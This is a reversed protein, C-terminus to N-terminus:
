PVGVRVVVPGMLGAAIRTKSKGKYERATPDDADGLALMRNRLPPTLTVEIANAGAIAQVTVDVVYPPVVADGADLGNVRVRAAGHLWGLDLLVRDGTAVVGIDVTATYQGPSAAGQLGTRDRWDGLAGDSTQFTGDPVDTGQVKLTWADVPVSRASTGPVAIPAPVSVGQSAPTPMGCMLLVSGYAPLAIAVQGSSGPNAAAVTGAWADAVQPEACGDGPVFSAALPEIGPNHLFVVRGGDPLLRRQQQLPSTGGDHRLWPTAGADALLAGADTIAAGKRAHAGALAAAVAAKVRADGADKGAYGPQRDPTAGVFVVPVGAAALRALAEAAEAPMTASDPVLVGRYKRGDIRATGGAATAAALRDDNVFDWAYGANSLGTLVPRLAGLWNTAPQLAKGGFASDVLELLASNGTDAPEDEFRGLYLPEDNDDLRMLSAPVGLWPYYVLLDAEPEGLRMAYQVRGVYRNLDPMWPWFPDAEGVCTSYTNGAFTSIFPLWDTQGYVADGTRYAFGHFNVGNIGAAFSKDLAARAKRPTNMWDRGAWVLSEQGVIPRGYLHAGSSVAKLFLEAGGAFLQEAEPISAAGAAKMPDVHLGYAQIRFSLGRAESWATVTGIFREIFLDSVTLQYDYRVREDDAGLAFPAAVGIGAGDFLHNDAGPTLVVPMWPVLDYGRRTQFQAAFDDAWHRECEFEFSDAFVGRIANGFYPALGTRDGLLHEIAATTRTADFHDLVFSPAGYAPLSVDEGDPLAWVGIVRWDGQPVDWTLSGDAKVKDTLVVLSAPDLTVTDTVTWPDPYRDDLVVRGALVAVRTAHQPLYQGLAEGIGSALDSAWYFPDLGPDQLGPLALVVTASGPGTVPHESFLLTRQSDLVDIFPGGTSWGSGLTLDIKLNAARAADLAARLNVYYADSDVSDRAAKREASDDPNLAADFAQIELGGFGNAAALTVERALEAPQVDNGPWWWRAWPRAEVPPQVFAEWSFTDLPADTACSMAAGTWLAALALVLVRSAPTRSM